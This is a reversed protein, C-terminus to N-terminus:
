EKPAGEAADYIIRLEDPGLNSERFRVTDAYLPLISGVKGYRSSTEDKSSYAGFLKVYGNGHERMLQKQREHGGHVVLAHTNIRVKYDHESPFLTLVGEDNALYGTVSVLRGNLRESEAFLDSGLVECFARGDMGRVHCEPFRTQVAPANARQFMIGLVLAIVLVQSAGIAALVKNQTTM